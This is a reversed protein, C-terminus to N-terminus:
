KRNKRANKRAYGRQSKIRESEKTYFTHQPNISRGYKKIQYKNIATYLQTGTEREKIGYKKLIYSRFHTANIFGKDKTEEFIFNFIFDNM